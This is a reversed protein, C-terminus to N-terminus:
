SSEAIAQSSQYLLSRLRYGSRLFLSATALHQHDLALTVLEASLQLRLLHVLIAGSGKRAAFEAAEKIAQSSLKGEGFELFLSLDDVEIASAQIQHTDILRDM